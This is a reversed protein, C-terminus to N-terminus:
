VGKVVNNKFWEIQDSEKAIDIIHLNKYSKTSLQEALLKFCLNIKEANELVEDTDGRAFLRQRLVNFDSSYFIIYPINLAEALDFIYKHQALTMKPKRNFITPYVIEGLNFRDYVAYNDSTLLGLHYEFDNKTLNNSHVINTLGCNEIIYNVLTSKGAGDPGEIIVKKFDLM